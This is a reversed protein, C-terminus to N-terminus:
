YLLSNSLHHDIVGRLVPTESHIPFVDSAPHTLGRQLLNRRLDGVVDAPRGAVVGLHRALRADELHGIERREADLEDGEDEGLDVLVHAGLGLLLEDRGPPRNRNRRRDLDALDVVEPGDLRPLGRRHHGERRLRGMHLDVGLDLSENPEEHHLRRERPPVPLLRLPEKPAEVRAGLAERLRTLAHPRQRHERPLSRGREPQRQVLSEDRESVSGTWM